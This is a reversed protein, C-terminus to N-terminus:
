FLDLLDLKSKWTFEGLDKDHTEKSDTVTGLDHVAEADEPSDCFDTRSLPGDTVQLITQWPLM